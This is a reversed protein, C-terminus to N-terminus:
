GGLMHAAALGAWEGYPRSSSACRSSRPARARSRRRQAGARRAQAARPRRGAAPRPPGPREARADRGDVLRDGPDGCGVGAGSTTPADHLDVRGRAVERAARVLTLARAAPSTSPSCCRPRPARAAGGRAPLDRLRSSPRRGLRGLPAGAGRAHAARDGGRARVRDAARLDGVRAGRVAGPATQGAAVPAPAGLARDASRARLAAPVAAPGRRRRARLADARDRARRGRAAARPRRVAVRDPGTQAVRM